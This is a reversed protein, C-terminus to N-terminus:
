GGCACRTGNYCGSPLLCVDSRLAEGPPAWFILRERGEFGWPSTARTARRWPQLWGCLGAWGPQGLTELGLGRSPSPVAKVKVRM